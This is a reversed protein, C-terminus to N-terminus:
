ARHSAVKGNLEVGLAKNLGESGGVNNRICSQPLMNAKRDPIGERVDPM